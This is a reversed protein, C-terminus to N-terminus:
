KVYERPDRKKDLKLAANRMQQAQLMEETVTKKYLTEFSPKKRKMKKYDEYQKKTGCFQLDFFPPVHHFRGSAWKTQNV